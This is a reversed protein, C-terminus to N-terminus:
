KTIRFSNLIDKIKNANKTTNKQGGCLVINQGNAENVAENKYDSKDGNSWGGGHIFLIVGSKNEVNEPIVISKLNRCNSFAEEGIEKLTSPIHVRKLQNNYFFAGEELTEIGEVLNLEKM